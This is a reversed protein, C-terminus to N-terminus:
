LLLKGQSGSNPITLNLNCTTNLKKIFYASLLPSAVEINQHVFFYLNKLGLDIWNKIREVWEDLRAYDSEHNAGVYRIFATPSSLRMHMMDRRGATDVIINAANKSKLSEYFLNSIELNSFWEANRVEVALPIDSPFYNLCREIREFDKAKFNDHMQLFVMGLKNKFERINNCYEDVIAEVQNLRKLHSISNTIKPFFKFTDPTKDHWIQVQKVSPTRYFTANLEISNFQTSYYSLEDKTGRPYFGKLDQRNWKACGVYVNLSDGPPATELINITDAHNEPMSFDVLDPRDLRGFKM